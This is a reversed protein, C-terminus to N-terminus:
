SFLGGDMRPLRAGAEAARAANAFVASKSSFDNLLETLNGIGEKDLTPSDFWSHIKWAADWADGAVVQIGEPAVLFVEFYARQIEGMAQAMGRIIAGDARAGDGLLTQPASFVRRLDDMRLMLELYAARRRDGRARSTDRRDKLTIGGWGALL